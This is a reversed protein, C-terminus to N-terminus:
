PHGQPTTLSTTLQISEAHLLSQPTPNHTLIDGGITEVVLRLSMQILHDRVDKKVSLHYQEIM